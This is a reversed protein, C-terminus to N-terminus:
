IMAHYKSRYSARGYVIGFGGLQFGLAISRRDACLSGFMEVDEGDIVVYCADDGQVNDDHIKYPAYHSWL